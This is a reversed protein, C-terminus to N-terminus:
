CDLLRPPARAPPRADTPAACIACPPARPAARTVEAAALPLDVDATYGHTRQLEDCLPCDDDAAFPLLEAGAVVAGARVEPADTPPAVAIRAGPSGSVRGAGRGHAHSLSHAAPAFVHLLVLVIATWANRNQRRV